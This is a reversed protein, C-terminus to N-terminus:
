GPWCGGSCRAIGALDARSQVQGFGQKVLLDRVAGAQDYGHELLLWGQPHLHKPVQAIITRIDDLGDRGATLASQPEHSLAVLHIDGDAVYPPNSAILHFHGSVNDLWSGEIFQLKLALRHANGRAVTLAGASAEVASVDLAPRTKKLALAIAGSGTGLDLVRAAAPMGPLSLTELTWDVLTETDPRPVLVRADVQLQLGYFAKSGVIYALPEGAARRLCLARFRDAVDGPLVDGDHALLWGRDSDPRDLAHLLLLQADLRELGLTQAATLAQAMSLTNPLTPATM